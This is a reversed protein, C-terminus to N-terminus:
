SRREPFRRQFETRREADVYLRPRYQDTETRLQDPSDYGYIRALAPNVILYRGDRTTRFFGELASDVFAHYSAEDQLKDQLQEIHKRRALGHYAAVAAICIAGFSIVAGFILNGAVPPLLLGVAFGLAISLGFSWRGAIAALADFVPASTVDAVAGATHRSSVNSSSLGAFGINM